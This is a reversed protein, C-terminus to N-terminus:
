EVVADQDTGVWFNCVARFAVFPLPLSSFSTALEMIPLLFANREMAKPPAANIEADVMDPTCDDKASSISENM